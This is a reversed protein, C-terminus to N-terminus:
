ADRARHAGVRPSARRARHGRGASQGAAVPVDRHLARHRGHRDRRHADAAPRLHARSRLHRGQAAPLALPLRAQPRREAGDGLRPGSRQRHRRHHPDRDGAGRSRSRGPVAKWRRTDARLTRPRRPAVAKGLDLSSGGGMAIIGDAGSKKYQAVAQLAAAETPNAPTDDYVAGRMDAQTSRGTGAACAPRACRASPSSAAQPHRRTRVRRRAACAVAELYMNTLYKILAM